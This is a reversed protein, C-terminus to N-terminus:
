PYLLYPQRLAKFASVDDKWRAKVESASAGAEIMEQIWACGCLKRFFDGGGLFFDEPRGCREYADIVYKLDIGAAIIEDDSLGRLDVGFCKEGLLPPNKAGERSEPTFSFDCGQMDPHGYMEFPADTGRGLSVKTGEFYCTSPYLYVAKMDKLNPSPAVPLTYRSAHTYNRCPVVELSLPKEIWGEGVIMRAMEGLTLGHVIPIPLWGVGSRYKMDLIPGDVYMGNPNPRDFIVVGKGGDACAEMLQFMTIYYTYFRLGVDQIDVVLVDFRSLVEPARLDTKGGYLSIIPVGTKADTGSGVHEGADATGRFGHEPSFILSVDVGRSLMEDLIHPAGAEHGALGTQNSLLAVKKGELLPLYKEPQMDGLIIEKPGCSFTLSLLAFVLLHKM